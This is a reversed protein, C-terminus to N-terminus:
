KQEESNIMSPMATVQKEIDKQLMERFSTYEEKKEKYKEKFKLWFKKPIDM